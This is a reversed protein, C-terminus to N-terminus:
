FIMEEIFEVIAEPNEWPLVNTGEVSALKYSKEDDGRTTGYEMRNIGRKDGVGSVVTLPQTMEQLETEFSRHQLLGANFAQVPARANRFKSEKATEDLWREDCKDRFLFLDSFFRIITRNELLTFALNGWIPSRLFEYNRQLEAEPVATTVDKYTPPSTLMLSTVTKPNRAAMMIGVPAQNHPSLHECQTTLVFPRNGEM